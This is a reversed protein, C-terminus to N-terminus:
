NNQSNSAGATSHLTNLKTIEIDVRDGIPMTKKMGLNNNPLLDVYLRLLQCAQKHCLASVAFRVVFEHRAGEPVISVIPL